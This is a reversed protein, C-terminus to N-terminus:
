TMIGHFLDHHLSPDTPLTAVHDSAPPAADHVGTFAVLESALTHTDGIVVHAKDSVLNAQVLIADDYHQGGVFQFGSTTGVVSIGAFNALQNHGTDIVMTSSTPVGNPAVGSGANPMFQAVTDANSVINTQSLANIDYFDGTIYLVHMMSSGISPLPAGSEPNWSGNEVESLWAALDPTFPQSTTAGYHDIAASNSLANNGTSVSQSTMDDRGSLMHVIDDNLFVNQQIIANTNHYSGGVIILDYHQALESFSLDSVQLNGGTSVESYSSSTSQMVVDNNSIYNLQSFAKVDYFDGQITDLQMHAWPLTSSVFSASLDHQAFSALNHATNGGTEVDFTGAQGGLAIDALSHLVNTQIIADTTYSNGHVVFGTHETHDDLISAINMATNGGTHAETGPNTLGNHSVTPLTAQTPLTPDFTGGPQLAGDAYIGPQVTPGTHSTPDADHRAVAQILSQDGQPVLWDPTSAEARGILDPLHQAAEAEHGVALAVFAPTPSVTTVIGDNHLVNAQAIEALIQGTVPAPTFTDQPGALVETITLDLSPAPLGPDHPDADVPPVQGLHPHPLGIKPPPLLRHQGVHILSVDGPQYPLSVPHSALDDISLDPRLNRHPDDSGEHTRSPGPAGTFVPHSRAVDELLHLYGIFHSISETTGGPVM